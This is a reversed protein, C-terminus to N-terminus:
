HQRNILREVALEAFDHAEDAPPLLGRKAASLHACSTVLAMHTFAQPFNGLAEGSAVDIEEAFLGVDNALALLRELLADAEDIRGAHTLCDLLWFSCLLFAGEGGELGDEANYRHVLGDRELDRKVVDITATVAPHSSPLLGLAPVLLTSADAVPYGVAQPFWGDAAAEKELYAALNDREAAWRDVAGGVGLGEALRVARDLAVWCNLKSHVFHRPEDRIEWIGQDPKEWRECVIDALGALFTWNDATIEGGARAFLWAAELLQGYCDLQLQKVAGNGVRVPRSGRHGALHDLELEPLSREGCIGYMIQLDRPRGAGTRELWHKFALAEDTFGLAFLSILTLTADRIWTYRYDWNREGGIDEPLSTTPAAVVAGSPAYTLAKLVLASRRVAAAHDGDYRCGSMWGKWFAITQHLERAPDSKPPRPAHSPTWGARVWAEDGAVLSWRAALREGQVPLPNSADIWLADAGGVVEDTRLRPVFAGYEFRPEIVVEVEVAGSTCVVRRLIAHAGIPMCDTLEVVGSACAFTTVLVNTDEIYARTVDAAAVPAVRFAGGSNEDLVKCFVAPSDFRPFCAWDISGDTGVLAASHCDGLLAYDGIRNM